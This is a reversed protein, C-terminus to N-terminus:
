QLEHVVIEKLQGYFYDHEVFSKRLQFYGISLIDHPLGLVMAHSSSLEM